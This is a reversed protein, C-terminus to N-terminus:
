LYLYITIFSYCLDACFNKYISFILQAIFLKM